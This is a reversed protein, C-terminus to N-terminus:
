KEVVFVFFFLFFCGIDFTIIQFVKLFVPSSNSLLDRETSAFYLFM